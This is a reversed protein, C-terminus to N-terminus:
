RKESKLIYLVVLVIFFALTLFGLVISLLGFLNILLSDSSLKYVVLSIMFLVLFLILNKWALTFRNQISRARSIRAVVRKKKPM